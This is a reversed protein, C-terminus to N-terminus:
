LSFWTPSAQEAISQRAERVTEPTSPMVETRQGPTPEHLPVSVDGESVADMRARLLEVGRQVDEHSHVTPNGHLAHM